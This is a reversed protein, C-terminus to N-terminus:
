WNNGEWSKVDHWPTDHVFPRVAFGVGIYVHVIYVSCMNRSDVRAICGAPYVVTGSPLLLFVRFFTGPAHLKCWLLSSHTCRSNLVATIRVSLVGTTTRLEQTNPYRCSSRHAATNCNAAKDCTAATDHQNSINHKTKEQCWKHWVGSYIGPLLIRTNRTNSNNEREWMVWRYLMYLYM